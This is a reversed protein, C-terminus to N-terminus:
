SLKWSHGGYFVTFPAGCMGKIVSVDSLKAHKCKPHRRVFKLAIKSYKEPLTKTPSIYRNCLRDVCKMSNAKAEEESVFWDGYFLENARYFSEQSLIELQNNWITRNSGPKVVGVTLRYGDQLEISFKELLIRVILNGDTLDVKAIEGQSGSMTSSNIIWGREIYGAVEATFKRDIEAYKM